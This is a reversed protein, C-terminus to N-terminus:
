DFLPNTRSLHPDKKKEDPFVNYQVGLTYDSVPPLDELFPSLVGKISPREM